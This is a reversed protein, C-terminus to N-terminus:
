GLNWKRGLRSRKGGIGSLNYGKVQGTLGLEQILKDSCLTVNSGSDLLAYTQIVKKPGLVRVPVISMCTKGSNEQATACNGEGQAVWKHLLTHHKSECGAVTCARQKWCKKQM